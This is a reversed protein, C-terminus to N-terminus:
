IKRNCIAAGLYRLTLLSNGFARMLGFFTSGIQQSYTSLFKIKILLPFSSTFFILIGLFFYMKPERFVNRYEDVYVVDYFYKLIIISALGMGLNYWLPDFTNKAIDGVLFFTALILWIGSIVHFYTAWPKTRFHENLVYLYYAACMTAYFVLVLRNDKYVRAFYYSVFMEFVLSVSLFVLFYRIIGDGKKRNILTVVWASIMILHYIEIWKLYNAM